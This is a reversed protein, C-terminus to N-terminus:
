NKLINLYIFSKSILIQMMNKSFANACNNDAIQMNPLSNKLM